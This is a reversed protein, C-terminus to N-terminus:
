DIKLKKKFDSNCRALISQSAFVTTEKQRNKDDMRLFVGKRDVIEM